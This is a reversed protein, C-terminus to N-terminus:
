KFDGNYISLTETANKEWSFRKLNQIAQTKIEQYKKDDSLVLALIRKMEELDFPNFYLAGKGCIEPISSINSAVSPVGFSAAELPPFGFGEYYSPFVFIKANEYLSLLVDEEVFDLYIINVNESVTKRFFETSRQMQGIIVLKNNILNKSRLDIYAKLLADYNKRPEIHGVTLLYNKADLKYKKLINIQKDSPVNGKRFRNQDIAEHIVHAKQHPINFADVIEDKTFQSITIIKDAKKLSLPVALKLYIYRKFSYTKPYKVFRVDHVTVVKKSNIKLPLHFFPSHFIDIKEKKIEKYWFLHGITAIKIRQSSNFPITKVNLHTGMKEKWYHLKDQFVYFIYENKNDVTTLNKVLNYIYEKIGGGKPLFYSCNIAIKM